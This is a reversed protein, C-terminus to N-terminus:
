DTTVLEEPKDDLEEEDNLTTLLQGNTNKKHKLVAALFEVIGYENNDMAEQLVTKLEEESYDFFKARNEKTNEVPNKKLDDLTLVRKESM